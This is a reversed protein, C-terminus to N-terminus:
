TIITQEDIGPEIAKFLSVLDWNYEILFVNCDKRPPSIPILKAEIRRNMEAKWWVKFLAHVDHPAYKLKLFVQEIDNM